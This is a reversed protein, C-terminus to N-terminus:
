FRFFCINLKGSFVKGQLMEDYSKKNANKNGKNDM